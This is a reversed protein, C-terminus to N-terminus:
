VVVRLRLDWPRGELHYCNGTPRFPSPKPALQHLANLRMVAFSESRHDGLQPLHLQVHPQHYRLRLFVGQSEPSPPMELLVVEDLTEHVLAAHRMASTNPWARVVRKCANASRESLQCITEHM